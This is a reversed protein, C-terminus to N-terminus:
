TEDTEFADFGGIRSPRASRDAVGNEVKDTDLGPSALGGIEGSKAGGRAERDGRIFSSFGGGPIARFAARIIRSGMRAPFDTVTLQLIVATM